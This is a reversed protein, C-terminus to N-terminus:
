KFSSAIYRIEDTISLAMTCPLVVPLPGDRNCQWLRCVKPGARPDKRTLSELQVM